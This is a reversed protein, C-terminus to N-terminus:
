CVLMYQSHVTYHQRHQTYSLLSNGSRNVTGTLQAYKDVYTM